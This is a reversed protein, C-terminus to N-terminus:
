YGTLVFAGWYYPEPFKEKLSRQARRFAEFKDNTQLFYQYFYIMFSKTAEDDVKWLSTMISKAGATRFARQLGYVGEGADMHGLSTECASLIVLSTNELNLGQAEYATLIGDYTDPFQKSSYYNVVGTLLLGSNVMANFVRYGDTTSHKIESWYGHTAIHLIDPSNLQYIKEETAQERLLLKVQIAKQDMEKKINIVETETGPLDTISSGRFDRVFSRTNENAVAILTAQPDNTKYMPRGILAANKIDFSNMGTQIDASSTTYHLDTEELLYKGTAPNFLTSLNILHYIGDPSFYIKKVGKLKEQIPKWYHEYLTTDKLKFKIHNQYLKYYRVELDKAFDPLYVVEPYACTKTIYYAAYYSTDSYYVQDRWNFRVIEVAAEGEKLRDRISKWDPSSIKLYKKFDTAKNTLENELHNVEEQLRKLQAQDISNKLEESPEETKRYLRILEQKKDMWNEYLQKIAPDNSNLFAQKRKQSGKLSLSKTFLLNDYAQATLSGYLAPAKSRSIKVFSHFNDYGEKLRANYYTVFAKEGFSFIIDNIWEKNLRFLKEYTTKSQEFQRDRMTFYAYSTFPTTSARFDKSVEIQDMVSKFLPHYQPAGLFGLHEARMFNISVDAYKEYSKYHTETEEIYYAVPKKLQAKKGRKILYLPYMSLPLQKQSPFKTNMCTIWENSASDRKQWLIEAAAYEKLTERAYATVTYRANSYLDCGIGNKNAISALYDYQENASQTYNYYDGVSLYYIMKSTLSEARYAIKFNENAEGALRTMRLIFEEAKLYDGSRSLFNTYYSYPHFVERDNGIYKLAREYYIKAKKFDSNREYAYGIYAFNNFTHLTDYKEIFSAANSANSPDSTTFLAPMYSYNWKTSPDDTDGVNVTTPNNMMKQLEQNAKEKCKAALEKDPVQNEFLTTLMYYNAYTQLEKKGEVMKLLNDALEKAKRADTTTYQYVESFKATFEEQTKQATALSAAVILLALALKIKQPSM